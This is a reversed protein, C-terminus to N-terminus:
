LGRYYAITQAIGETFTVRPHWGLLQEAKSIDLATRQIEGPRDPCFIPEKTIGCGASIANFVELTSTEVGTGINITDGDARDVALVNANAVDGVYVYDRTQSGDGYIRMPQDALAQNTFIACVGAEGEPNQRPGYVNAYRLVTSRLGFLSRYLELYREGTLKSLGYPSAPQAPASESVPILAPDGYVAGGSSAFVIKPPSTQKRAAELVSILGIVNQTADNLPSSISSVVSPQAAQLSIVEASFSSIVQETEGPDTIDGQFFEAGSPINGRSGTSLNDLVGVEHGAALLADCIHSGIFGAGGIVLVRAM